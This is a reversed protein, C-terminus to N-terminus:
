KYYNHLNNVLIQMKEKLEVPAIIRVWNGFMLLWRSISEHDNLLFTMEKFDGKDTEEVFGYLYKEERMHPLAEKRFELRVTELDEKKAVDDLYERLSPHTASFKRGTEVLELIRDTRFDRYNDRLRCWAILHWYGAAFCIGLPEIDRKTTVGNRGAIYTLTLVEKESISKLIRQLVNEGIDGNEIGGFYPYRIVEIRSDLDEIVDKEVSRLVAKIKYMAANYQSATADDTYKAALKEATLLAAAEQRTFMIPPLRYGEMISYGVGAEGIIPIGAEELTKVDRYVTRLSIDFRDAIEQARVVKKSQLHILIATVRDIRNM